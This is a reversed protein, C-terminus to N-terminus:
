DTLFFSTEIAKNILNMTKRNCCGVKDKLRSKDITRIQELMVISKHELGCDENLLIHTPMNLKKNHKTITAIITTPGHKNGIDNQIIVVPREGTQESGRGDLECYYIEGKKIIM